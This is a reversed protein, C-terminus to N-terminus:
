MHRHTARLIFVEDNMLLITDMSPCTLVSPLETHSKQALRVRRAHPLMRVSDKQSGSGHKEKRKWRYLAICVAGETEFLCRFLLGFTKGIFQHPINVKDFASIPNPDNNNTPLVTNNSNIIKINKNVISNNSNCHSCNIVISKESGMSSKGNNSDNLNNKDNNKDKGGIDTFNLKFKSIDIVDNKGNNSRDVDNKIKDDKQM